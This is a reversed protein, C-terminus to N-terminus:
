RVQATFMCDASGITKTFSGTSSNCVSIGTSAVLPVPFTILENSDGAIKIPPLLLSVAGDAPVTASNIVLIYQASVKSNYVYLSVLSGASGKLVHSAELASSKVTTAAAVSAAIATLSTQATDQKASTALGTVDFNVTAGTFDLPTSFYVQQSFTGDTNDHYLLPPQIGTNDRLQFNQVTRDTAFASTALGITALIVLKLNM